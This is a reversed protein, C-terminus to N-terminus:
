LLNGERFSVTRGHFDWREQYIGDFNPPNELWRVTLKCSPINKRDSSHGLIKPILYWFGIMKSTFGVM